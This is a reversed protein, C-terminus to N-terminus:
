GEKRFIYIKEKELTAWKINHSRRISPLIREYEDVLFLGYEITSKIVKDVILKRERNNKNDEAFIPMIFCAYGGFKLKKSIKEISKRM